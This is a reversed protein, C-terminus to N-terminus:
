RCPPSGPTRGQEFIEAQQDIALPLAHRQRASREIMSQRARTQEEAGFGDLIPGGASVRTPAMSPILSYGVGGRDAHVVAQQGSREGEHERLGESKQGLRGALRQQLPLEVAHRVGAIEGDGLRGFELIREVREGAVFEDHAIM